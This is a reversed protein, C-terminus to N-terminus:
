IEKDHALILNVIDTPLKEQKMIKQSFNCLTKHLLFM